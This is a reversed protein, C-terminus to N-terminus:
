LQKKQAYAISLTIYKKINESFLVIDEMERYGKHAQM